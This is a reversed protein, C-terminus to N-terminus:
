GLASLREARPVFRASGGEDPGICGSCFRGPDERRGDRTQSFLCGCGPPPPLLSAISIRRQGKNAGEVWFFCGGTIGGRGAAGPQQNFFGAWFFFFLLRLRLQQAPSLPRPWPQLGAWGSLKVIEM